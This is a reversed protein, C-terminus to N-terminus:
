KLSRPVRNQEFVGIVKVSESFHHLEELVHANQKAHIDAAIEIYFYAINFRDPDVYSELKLINISNTAFGGLAKYLAAPVSRLRLLLATVPHEYIATKETARRMVIFRTINNSNNAIDREAIRLDYIAACNASAIAANTACNDAHVKQAAFANDFVPVAQYRHTHIFDRCQLLAQPHACVHTIDDIASSPVMLLCHTIKLFHEAVIKLHTNFLLHHIESVRGGINNEIPIIAIDCKGEEVVEISEEFTPYGRLVAQPAIMSAMSHSYSGEIGQYSVSHVDTMNM